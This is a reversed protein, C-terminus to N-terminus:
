SRTRYGFRVRAWRGERGGRYSVGLGIVNRLVEEDARRPGENDLTPFRHSELLLAVVDRCCRHRQALIELIFNAGVYASDESKSEWPELYHCKPM